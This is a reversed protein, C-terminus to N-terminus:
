QTPQPTQSPSGGRMGAGMMPNVQINTATFTGDSNQTGFAAVRTGTALDSKTGATAKNISTSGTVLVITTSGDNMKLTISNNDSSLISGSVPRSGGRGAYAGSVGSAGRSGFGGYQSAFTSRKSKQYQIGGFFGGAGVLIVLVIIILTNNKM